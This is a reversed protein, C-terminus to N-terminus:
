LESKYQERKNKKHAKREKYIKEFNWSDAILKWRKIGRKNNHM